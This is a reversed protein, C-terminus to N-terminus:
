RGSTRSTRASGPTSPLACATGEERAQEAAYDEEAMQTALARAIDHIIEKASRRKRPSSHCQAPMTNSTRPSTVSGHCVSRQQNAAGGKSLMAVARRASLPSLRSFAPSTLICSSRLAPATRDLWRGAPSAPRDRALMLRPGGPACISRLTRCSVLRPYAARPGTGKGACGM